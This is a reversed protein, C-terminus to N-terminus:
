PDLDEGFFRAEEPERSIDGPDLWEGSNTVAEEPDPLEEGPLDVWSTSVSLRPDRQDAPLLDNIFPLRSGSDLSTEPLVAVGTRTAHIGSDGDQPAIRSLAFGIGTLAIVVALGGSM